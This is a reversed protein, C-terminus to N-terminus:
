EVSELAFHYRASKAKLSARLASTRATQTGRRSKRSGNQAARYWGRDPAPRPLSRSESAPASGRKTPDAIERLSEETRSGFFHRPHFAWLQYRRNAGDWGHARVSQFRGVTLFVNVTAVQKPYPRGALGSLRPAPRKEDAHRKSTRSKWKPIAAPRRQM